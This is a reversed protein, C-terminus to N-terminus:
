MFLNTRFSKETSYGEKEREVKGGSFADDTSRKM